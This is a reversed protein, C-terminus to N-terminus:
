HEKYTDIFKKQNIRYIGSQNGKQNELYLASNLNWKFGNIEAATWGNRSSWIGM